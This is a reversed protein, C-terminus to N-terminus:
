NDVFIYHFGFFVLVFSITTPSHVWSTGGIDIATDDYGSNPPSVIVDGFKNVWVVVTENSMDAFTTYPRVNGDYCHWSASTNELCFQNRMIITQGFDNKTVVPNVFSTCLSMEEQRNMVVPDYIRRREATASCVNPIELVTNHTCLGLLEDVGTSNEFLDDVSLNLALWNECLEYHVYFSFTDEMRYGNCAACFRNRFLLGSHPHCVITHYAISKYAYSYACEHQYLASDPCGIVSSYYVSYPTAESEIYVEKIRLPLENSRIFELEVTDGDDNPLLNDLRGNGARFCKM